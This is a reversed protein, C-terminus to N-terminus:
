WSRPIEYLPESSFSLAWNVGQQCLGAHVSIPWLCSINNYECFRRTDSDWVEYEAKIEAAIESLTFIIQEMEKEYNYGYYGRRRCNDVYRSLEACKEILPVVESFMEAIYKQIQESNSWYDDSNGELEHCVQQCSMGEFDSLNDGNASGTESNPDEADCVKFWDGRVAEMHNLQEDFLSNAETVKTRKYSVWAEEDTLVQVTDWYTPCRSDYGALRLLMAAWFYEFSSFPSKSQSTEGGYSEGGFYFTYIKPWKNDLNGKRAM